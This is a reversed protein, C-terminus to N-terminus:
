LRGITKAKKAPFVPKAVPSGLPGPSALSQVMFAPSMMNGTPSGFAVSMQSTPSSAQMGFAGMPLSLGGLPLSLPALSAFTGQGGGLGGPLAPGQGLRGVPRGPLQGVPQSALQGTPRVQEQLQEPDGGFARAQLFTQAPLPAPPNQPALVGEFQRTSLATQM